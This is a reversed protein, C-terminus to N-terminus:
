GIRRAVLTSASSSRVVANLRTTSQYSRFLSTASRIEALARELISTDATDGTREVRRVWRGYAARILRMGDATLDDSAIEFDDDIALPSEALMRTTLGQTQLFTVLAWFQARIVNLPEPENPHQTHWGVKDVTFKM